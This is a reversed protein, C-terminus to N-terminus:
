DANTLDLRTAGSDTLLQQIRIPLNGAGATQTSQLFRGSDVDRVLDDIALDLGLETLLRDGEIFPLADRGDEDITRSLVRLAFADFLDEPSEFRAHNAGLYDLLLGVSLCVKDMWSVSRVQAHASLYDVLPLLPAVGDATGVLIVPIKVRGGTGDHVVRADVKVHGRM